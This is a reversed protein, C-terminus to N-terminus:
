GHSLEPMVEKKRQPLQALIVACFMLCCGFYERVTLREHLFLAGSLTAFVSELSLLLSVVTPNAGKQALIQLTYAIGSSFLGAYLIPGLGSIVADTTVTERMVAAGLCSLATVTSFQVCSMEIGDVRLSFHDIVLIHVSFCLACVFVYADGPTVTFQEGVCLCYLGGVALVVGAWVTVPPRRGLLASLLPVVVIYLATIFGAKGSSTTELGKQQFYAAVTLCAGCCGGATLLDRIPVAPVRGLKRRVVSVGFLFVMAVASRAANFSFSELYNAGISQAVFGTGWIMAALVPLVTQRVRNQRM